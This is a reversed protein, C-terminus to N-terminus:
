HIPEVGQRVVVRQGDALKDVDHVVVRLGSELGADVIVWDAIRVGLSVRTRKLTGDYEVFVYSRGDLYQVAAIPVTIVDDRRPQPIRARATTGARLRDDNVRVRAEYTFTQPDPAVQLSVLEGELIAVPIEIEPVEISVRTGVELSSASKNDLHLLLDFQSVDVVTLAVQGANVYNGVEVGIRNVIGEFPALLGTRELDRVAHDRNSRALDLRAVAVSVLHAARAEESQLNILERRAADRSSKTTLSKKVLGELRAVEKAQLERKRKSLVLLKQDREVEAAVLDLEAQMRTLTDRYDRDDIKLLVEGAAVVAGAEVFRTEVRGAVEFKLDSTKVPEFRGTLMRWPQASRLQLESVTVALPSVEREVLRPGPETWFIIIIAALTALVLALSFSKQKLIM